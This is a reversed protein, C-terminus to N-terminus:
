TNGIKTNRSCKIQKPTDINICWYKEFQREKKSCSASIARTVKLIHLHIGYVEVLISLNALFFNYLFCFKM